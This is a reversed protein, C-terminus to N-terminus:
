VRNNILTTLMTIIMGNQHLLQTMLTKFEDLFAQLPPFHEGVPKTEASVVSAYTRRQQQSSPPFSTAPPPIQSPQQSSTATSPTYGLRHPNYGMLINHYHQCGKYNAPHSGGCLVCKAPTDRPKTCVSTHHHGSCKVCVYPKNCYRQTHGYQQCRTCQPIGSNTRPPEFLIIKNQIATINYVDKNNSAPELDVYFLNMPDKTQRHRINTINRVVHGLDFLERKIDDTDTTYHLYKLVVRFAREEKLQYTHFYINKEKFHKVIARYTTPTTCSIKIVNNTLTKTCFQEEEAVETISKIMEGYHIVGHVYITPPKPIPQPKTRTPTDPSSADDMLVDYRNSTEPHSPQPASPTTILRKRKVRGMHQWENSKESHPDDSVDSKSSLEHHRHKNQMGASPSPTTTATPAITQSQSYSRPDKYRPATQLKPPQAKSTCPNPTRKPLTSPQQQM